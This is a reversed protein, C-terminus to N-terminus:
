RLSHGATGLNRDEDPSPPTKAPDPKAHPQQPNADTGLGTEPTAIEPQPKTSRLPTCKEQCSTEIFKGMWMWSACAGAGLARRVVESHLTKTPMGQGFETLRSGRAERPPDHEINQAHDSEADNRGKHQVIQSMNLCHTLTSTLRKAHQRQGPPPKTRGQREAPSKQSGALRDSISCFPREAPCGPYM